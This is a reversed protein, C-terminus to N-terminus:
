DVSAILCVPLAESKSWSWKDYCAKKALVDAGKNAERWVHSLEWEPHRNFLDSCRASWNLKSQDDLGGALIGSIAQISDMEFVVKEWKRVDAVEMAQLLAKGEAELVSGKKSEWSAFAFMVTGEEDRVLGAYGLANRQACWAGDCNIKLFGKKPAKWRLPDCVHDTSILPVKRRWLRCYLEVRRAAWRVDWEEKGHWVENRNRWIIWIGTCIRLLEEEERTLTIRWLWDASNALHDEEISFQTGLLDWLAKSWWCQSLLHMISEQSHGCIKCSVELSIGKSALVHAVPWSNHYLRWLLFLVKRPAHIRWLRNWFSKIKRYDSPQGEGARNIAKAVEYGSKTSYIGSSCKNWLFKGEQADWSISDKLIYKVSFLSRWVWSPRSGVNAEMFGSNPFYRAKMVRSMLLDPKTLIRWAQKAILADNMLKFNKFGLGGCSKDEELLERRVWYVGRSTGQNSWWFKAVVSTMKNLIRMPLAFCSMTYLPTAMLVSKLLVEKGAISLLNEKWGNIRSWMKEVVFNFAESRKQSMVLPLGLYKSHDLVNSVGLINSLVDRDRGEVNPSFLVESKSYNIRQGAVAEYNELIRKIAAFETVNARLYIMCDDAFFLHTIKPAGRAVAIGKLAGRRSKMAIEKSLWESCLIFLYPSLPDGQRIGRRPIITDSYWNNVKVRYSVTSVCLMVKEVWESAFGLKLLMRKIFDWELRDYAKSMDVKLSAVGKKQIQHCKIYHNIEQALLINDTIIRGKVFASQNPSIAKDLISQLRNVMAKSIIKMIVNCLSIPRFQELSMADKVKPILVINTANLQSDLIKNNLCRLVVETVDDKVIHWCKQYFLASFGDPGPAKTPCMQFLANRVEEETFEEMLGKNMEETVVPHVNVLKSDWDVNTNVLSSQFMTQFYEVVVENIQQKTEVFVDNKNRIRAIHNKKKRQTARAHFYKTNKDGHNLWEVRSRQRWLMEERALWEDIEASLEDEMRCNEETRPSRRIKELKLKLREIRKKVNGFERRNWSSLADACMELKESWSRRCTLNGEWCDAVVNMFNGNRLWMSEFRFGRDAENVVGAKPSLLIPSHDSATVTLHKVQFELGAGLWAKNVFARDLRAKTELIGQRRNSFTFPYGAYGLDILECDDVVRRFAEIQWMRRHRIGQVENGRLVENFDGLIVWPGSQLSHLVRILDWSEKRRSVMPHGYFLTLRSQFETEVIADIHHSSFNKITLCLEGKWLMALGGATGRPDVVFCNSYGLKVRLWEWKGHRMKTELLCVVQPHHSDIADKLARVTRANGMGRCNWSLVIM